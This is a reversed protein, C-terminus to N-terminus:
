HVCTAGKATASTDTPSSNRTDGQRGAGHHSRWPALMSTNRQYDEFEPIHSKSIGETFATLGLFLLTLLAAGVM